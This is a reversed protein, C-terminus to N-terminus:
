ILCIRMYWICKRAVNLLDPLEWARFKDMLNKFMSTKGFYNAYEFTLMRLSILSRPHSQRRTKERRRSKASRPLARIPSNNPYILKKPVPMISGKHGKGKHGPNNTARPGVGWSGLSLHQPWGPVLGGLLTSCKCGDKCHPRLSIFQHPLFLTCAGKGCSDKFPFPFASRKGKEKVVPQICIYNQALKSRLLSLSLSPRIPFLQPGLPSQWALSEGVKNWGTDNWTEM